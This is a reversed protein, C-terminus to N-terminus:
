QELGALEVLHEVHICINSDFNTTQRVHLAMDSM